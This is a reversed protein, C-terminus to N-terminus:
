IRNIARREVKPKRRHSTVVEVIEHKEFIIEVKGFGTSAKIDAISALVDTADQLSVGSKELIIALTDAQADNENTAMTM